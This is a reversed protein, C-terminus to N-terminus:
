GITTVATLLRRLQAILAGDGDFVVDGTGGRYYM